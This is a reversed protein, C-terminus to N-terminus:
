AVTPLHWNKQLFCCPFYEVFFADDKEVLLVETTPRLQYEPVTVESLILNDLM